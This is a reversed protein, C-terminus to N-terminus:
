QWMFEIDQPDGVRGLRLKYHFSKFPNHKADACNACKESCFSHLVKTDRHGLFIFFLIRYNLVNKKKHLMMLYKLYLRNEHKPFCVM